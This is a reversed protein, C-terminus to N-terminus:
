MPRWWRGQLLSFAFAPVTEHLLFFMPNRFSPQCSASKGYSNQGVSEWSLEVKYGMVKMAVRAAALCRRMHIHNAIVHLSDIGLRKCEEISFLIETYTNHVEQNRLRDPTLIENNVRGVLWSFMLESLIVGNRVFRNSVILRSTPYRLAAQECGEMVALLATGISGDGMQAISMVVIAMPPKYPLRDPVEWLKVIRTM